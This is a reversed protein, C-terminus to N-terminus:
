ASQSSARSSARGAQSGGSTAVAAPALVAGSAPRHAALVLLRAAFRLDELVGHQPHHRPYVPALGDVSADQDVTPRQAIQPGPHLQVGLPQQRQIRGGVDLADALSQVRDGVDARVRLRGPLRSLLLDAAPEPPQGRRPARDHLRPRHVGPQGAVRIGLGLSQELRQYPAQVARLGSGGARGSLQAPAFGQCKAGTLASQGDGPRPRRPSSPVMMCTVPARLAASRSGSFTASSPQPVTPDWTYRSSVSCDASKCALAPAGRCTTPTATLSGCNGLSTGTSRLRIVVSPALRTVRGSTSMTISSIPPISGARLRSSAARPAPLDTIVAFLARM